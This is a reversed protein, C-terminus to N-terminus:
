PHTLELREFLDLTEPSPEVHVAALSRRCRHFTEVAEARREMRRYCLMLQRYFGEALPDADICKDYCAAAREPHLAADWFRGIATMAQVFRARLRDRRQLHWAEEPEAAMFPGRYISLLREQLREIRAADVGASGRRMANEVEAAADEFAWADVWFYRRDLSLRGEHL